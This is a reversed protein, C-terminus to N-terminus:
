LRVRLAFEDPEDLYVAEVRQLAADLGPDAAWGRQRRRGKASVGRAFLRWAGRLVHRAAPHMLVDLGRETLRYVTRKLGYPQSADRIASERVIYGARRLVRVGDQATSASCGEREQIEDVLESYSLEFASVLQLVWVLDVKKRRGMYLYDAV